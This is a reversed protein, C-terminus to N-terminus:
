SFFKFRYPLRQFRNLIESIRHRTFQFFPRSRVVEFNQFKM